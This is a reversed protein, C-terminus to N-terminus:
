RTARSPRSAPPPVSIRSSYGMMTQRRDIAPRRLRGECACQGVASGKSAQTVEGNLGCSAEIMALIASATAARNTDAAASAASAGGCIDGWCFAIISLIVLAAVGPPCCAISVWIAPSHVQVTLYWISGDCGECSDWDVAVM